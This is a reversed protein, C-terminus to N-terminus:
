EKTPLMGCLGRRMIKLIPPLVASFAAATLVGAVYRIILAGFIVAFSYYGYIKSDVYFAATNLTTVLLASLVVILTTQKRSMRFGRRRAYWGVLLGRAAAPIIWLVTTATFGYKLMQNMLSGLLGIMLGDVPGFLAAGVVVALGAFTVEVSDGFLPITLLSLVVYMAIMMGNVALKKTKM